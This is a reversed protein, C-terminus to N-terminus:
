EEKDPKKAGPKAPKAPRGLEESKVEERDKYVKLAGAKLLSPIEKAIFMDGNVISGAKIVKSEVRIDTILEYKM